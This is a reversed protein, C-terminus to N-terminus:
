IFLNLLFKSKDWNYTSQIIPYSKTFSIIKKGFGLYCHRFKILYYFILKLM